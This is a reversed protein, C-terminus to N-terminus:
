RTALIASAFGVGMALVTVLMWGVAAGRTNVDRLRINAYGMLLAPPVGALAWPHGAVASGVSAILLLVAVVLAGRVAARLTHDRDFLWVPEDGTHRIKPM